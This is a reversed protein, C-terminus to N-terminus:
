YNCYRVSATLPANMARPEERCVLPRCQPHLDLVRRALALAFLAASPPALLALRCAKKAFAAAAASSLHTSGLCLDLMRFLRARHRAHLLGPTLQALLSDYFAPYDLNHRTMLLFLSDLALV